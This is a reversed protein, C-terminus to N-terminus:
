NLPLSVIVKRGVFVEPFFSKTFPLMFTESSQNEKIEIINGAGFNHVNVITGIFEGKEYDYTSPGYGIRNVLGDLIDALRQRQLKSTAKPGDMGESFLLEIIGEDTELNYKDVYEKVMDYDDPHVLEMAEEVKGMGAPRDYGLMSFFRGSFFIEGTRLNWDFIGDETGKTSAGTLVM